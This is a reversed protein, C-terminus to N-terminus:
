AKQENKQGSTTKPEEILYSNLAEPPLFGHRVLKCVAEHAAKDAKDLRDIVQAGGPMDEFGQNLQWFRLLADYVDKIAPGLVTVADSLTNLQNNQCVIEVAMKAQEEAFISYLHTSFDREKRIEICREWDEVLGFLWDTSVDYLKAAGDIVWLPISKADVSDEWDRLDDHSVDLLQAAQALSHGCLNRGEKLRASVTKLIEIESKDELPALKMQKEVTMMM